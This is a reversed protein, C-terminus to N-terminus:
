FFEDRWQQAAEKVSDEILGISVDIVPLVFPRPEMTSTGFELHGAYPVLTGPGGAAIVIGPVTEAEDLRVSRRLSGTRVHPPEGPESPPPWATSISDEIESVIEAGAAVLGAQIHENLGGVSTDLAGVIEDLGEIRINITVM